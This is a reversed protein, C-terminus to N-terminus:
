SLDSDNCPLPMGDTRYREDDFSQLKTPNCGLRDTPQNLLFRVIDEFRNVFAASSTNKFFRPHWEIVAFTMHCFAGKMLLSSLADYEAGEIDIKAFISCNGKEIGEPLKRPVVEEMIYRAIDITKLKIGKNGYNIFLSSGWHKDKSANDIFFTVDKDDVNSVAAPVFFKVKWGKKNYCREIKKLPEAHVPNAEFGVACVHNPKVREEVKGFHKDYFPLVKGRTYLQPEFIKRVQVGINAGIDLYIHRCGDLFLDNVLSTPPATTTTTTTVAKGSKTAETIILTTAQIAQLKVSELERNLYIFSSIIILSCVVILVLNNSPM